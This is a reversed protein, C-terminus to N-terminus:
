FQVDKDESWQICICVRAAARARCRRADHALIQHARRAGAALGPGRPRRRACRFSVTQRERVVCAARGSAIRVICLPYRYM